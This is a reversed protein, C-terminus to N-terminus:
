CVASLIGPLLQKWLLQSSIVFAGSKALFLPKKANIQKYIFKLGFLLPHSAIAELQALSPKPQMNPFM